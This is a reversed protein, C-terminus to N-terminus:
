LWPVSQAWAEYVVSLPMVHCRKSVSRIIIIGTAQSRSGMTAFCVGRTDSPSNANQTKMDVMIKSTHAAIATWSALVVGLLALCALVFNTCTYPEKLIGRSGLLLLHFQSIITTGFCTSRM